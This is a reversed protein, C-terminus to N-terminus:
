WQHKPLLTLIEATVSPNIKQSCYVTSEWRVYLHWAPNPNSRASRSLDSMKLHNKLVRKISQASFGMLHNNLAGALFSHNVKDSLTLIILKRVQERYQDAHRREDEAQM